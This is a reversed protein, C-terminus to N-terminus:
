HDVLLKLLRSLTHTALLEDAVDASVKYARGRRRERRGGPAKVSNQRLRFVGHVELSVSPRVKAIANELLDFHRRFTFIFVAGVGVFIFVVAALLHACLSLGLRLALVLLIVVAIAEVATGLAAFTNDTAMTLQQYRRM